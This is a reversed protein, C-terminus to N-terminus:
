RGQQLYVNLHCITADDTFEFVTLSNVVLTAGHRLHREEIEFYVLNGVQSIRRVTTEFTDIRSVWDTLMQTYQQWDQVELFTGVREFQDTAVFDALPAWDAATKVTPVLQKMLEQYRLVIDILARDEAM